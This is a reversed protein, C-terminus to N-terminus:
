NATVLPQMTIKRAQQIRHDGDQEYYSMLFDVESDELVRKKFTTDSAEKDEQSYVIGCFLVM